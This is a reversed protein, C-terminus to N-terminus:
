RGEARKGGKRRVVTTDGCVIGAGKVCLRWGLLEIGEKVARTVRGQFSGGKDWAGM